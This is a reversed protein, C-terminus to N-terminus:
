SEVVWPPTGLDGLGLQGEAGCTPCGPDASASIRRVDGDALRYMLTSPRQGPGAFGTTRALLETVALSAVVGNISVVAPASEDLGQIYGRLLEDARASPSLQEARVREGNLIEQCWLCAVGPALWTVRGGMAGSTQLEVGLDLVPVYYQYAIANLVTRSWQTDTCGIVVDCELLRRAAGEDTV